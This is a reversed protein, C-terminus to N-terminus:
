TGKKRRIDDEREMSFKGETKHMYWCGRQMVVYMM